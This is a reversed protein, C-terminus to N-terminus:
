EPGAIRQGLGDRTELRRRLRPELWDWLARLRRKFEEKALDKLADALIDSAIWVVIAVTATSVDINSRDPEVLLPAKDLRAVLDPPVELQRAIDARATADSLVDSWTEQIAMNLERESLSGIEHVAIREGGRDPM